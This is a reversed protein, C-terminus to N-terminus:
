QVLSVEVPKSSKMTKAVEAKAMGQRKSGVRTKTYPNATRIGNEEVNPQKVYRSRAHEPWIDVIGSRNTITMTRKGVQPM